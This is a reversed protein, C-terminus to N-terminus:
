AFRKVVAAVISQDAAVTQMLEFCAYAIDAYSVTVGKNRLIYESFRLTRDILKNNSPRVWTMINGDYRGLRGMVLTSHMNLLMKLVLHRSLPPLDGVDLDLRYGGFSFVIREPGNMIAFPNPPTALRYDLVRASFDFGLVRENSAIGRVESWILTRPQRGLILNWASASDAAAPLCLRCLSPVADRDLTNEFPHMSFTPARETTDTLITIALEPDTQYLVRGVHSYCDSEMEILPILFVPALNSWYDQLVKIIAHADHQQGNGLLATGVAAMLVTSAQMRTSGALAMPGVTLNMKEIRSDRLVAASRQAVKCLLDDPNCYLFWPPNMSLEAARLTAGIVFPTEGGETSAILLDQGGFGLEALQRAGYEPHDEFNEISRVLAADGGAMFGIVRDILNDSAHARRWFVECALSLRGTAGCGCLYIKAGSRLTWAIREALALIRDISRSLASLAERDVAHLIRIAQGLDNCALESLNETSPHPQETVLEGLNFQSAIALYEEARRKFDIQTKM